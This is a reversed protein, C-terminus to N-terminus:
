LGPHMSRGPCVAPEHEVPKLSVDGSGKGRHLKGAKRGLGMPIRPTATVLIFSEARLRNFSICNAETWQDLRDLNRQLTKRGELLDVSM